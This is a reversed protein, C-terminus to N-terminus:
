VKAVKKVINKGVNDVTSGKILSIYIFLVLLVFLLINAFGVKVFDFIPSLINGFPLSTKADNIAGIVEPDKIVTGDETMYEYVDTAPNVSVKKSINYSEVWAPQYAYNSDEAYGGNKLAQAFETVNSAKFIGNYRQNKLLSEYSGAFESLSDFKKGNIGYPSGVYAMYGALNNNKSGTNTGYGTEHSWQAVIFNPDINLDKGVVEAYPKVKTIFDEKYGM